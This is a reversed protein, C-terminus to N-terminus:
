LLINVELLIKVQVYGGTIYRIIDSPGELQM